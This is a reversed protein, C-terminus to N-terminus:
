YIRLSAMKFKFLRHTQSSLVTCHELCVSILESVLFHINYKTFFFTEDIRYLMNSPWITINWTSYIFCIYIVTYRPVCSPNLPATDIRTVVRRDITFPCVIKVSWSDDNPVDLVLKNWAKQYESEEAELKLKLSWFHECVM